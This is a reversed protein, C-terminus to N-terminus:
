NNPAVLADLRPFVGSPKDIIVGGTLAHEANLRSFCRDEEKIKLQDLMTNAANPVIPLLYLGLCRVCEVLAYLVALMREPDEKKLAWPAQIGVYENADSAINRVLGYAKHFQMASMAERFDELGDYASQLLLQDDNTLTVASKEPIRAECNKYIMSLSRQSLNGITNALDSNVLEVLRNESFNGDSGFPVENLLFYRTADLGYRDVLESPAIVNGLSKSMKEGEITWWGHAVIRKPLPIGAAMLFAPWYVAHFRLIDKGVVHIPADEPNLWFHQYRESTEDPFGLASIYNTLADIWVYMVHQDNDPVPVGWNFTTRSISLDKLAGEVKEKGGRVFSVVENYRSKPYIFDPNEDYFRLLPEQWQSLDFFYSEEEVWEVEAGTPAKGDILESEQYYAEDRVSYWGAYSDLYIHGNDQLRRWLAQCAEKHRAETTRIFDDNTVNLTNDGTAVLNRFRLSVEDSYSQTDVGANAAAKDVKQGHEDTGTLFRVQYGDLRKFRALTDCALTTYAHGLHPSDNVYYIPTTIYFSKETM